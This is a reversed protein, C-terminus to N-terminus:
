LHKYYQEWVECYFKEILDLFLFNRDFNEGQRTGGFIISRKQKNDHKKKDRDRYVFM